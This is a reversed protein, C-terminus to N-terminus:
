VYSECRKNVEDSALYVLLSAIEEPTGVRGMKQRALFDRRASEPDAHANVRDRFSFSM